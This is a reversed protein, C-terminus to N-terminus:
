IRPPPSALLQLLSFRHRSTTKKITYGAASHGSSKTDRDRLVLTTLATRVSRPNIVLSRVRQVGQLLLLCVDEYGYAVATCLM